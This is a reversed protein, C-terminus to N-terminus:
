LSSWKLSGKQRIEDDPNEKETDQTKVKEKGKKNIM